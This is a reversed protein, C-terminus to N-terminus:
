QPRIEIREAQYFNQGHQEGISFLPASRAPAAAEEAAEEAPPAPAAPAAGPVRVYATEHFGKGPIDVRVEQFQRPRLGGLESRVAKDYVPQSLILALNAQPSSDLATRVPRSDLLRSLVVFAPGASGFPADSLAGIHMAVRLRIRHGESHAENHDTLLEDLAAVLTAVVSILETDAPLEAIEGDGGPQRRWRRRDLGATRAADDLLRDLDRQVELQERTNLRSYRQLDIGLVFRDHLASRPSM